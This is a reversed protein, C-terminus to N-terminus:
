VTRGVILTLYVLKQHIQTIVALHVIENVSILSTFDPQILKMMLMVSNQM